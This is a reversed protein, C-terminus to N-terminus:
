ACRKTVFYLKKYITGTNKNVGASPNFILHMGTTLFYIGVGANKNKMFIRSCVGANNNEVFFHLYM